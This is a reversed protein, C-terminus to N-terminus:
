PQPPPVEEIYIRSVSNWGTYADANGYGHCNGVNFGVKVVGAPIRDCAGEIHRVRHLDKVANPSAGTAMYVVGEIAAPANCAAGNFTFFWRKCCGNCNYIRLPGNWFVRLSSRSSSKKFVCEVILGSDAGNNLKNFACQKWPGRPGTPGQIGQAGQDGKPGQAGAPGTPGTPGQPGSQGAPGPTGPIGPIGPARATFSQRNVPAIGSSNSAPAKAQQTEV